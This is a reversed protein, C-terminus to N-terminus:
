DVSVSCPWVMSCFALFKALSPDLPTNFTGYDWSCRNLHKKLFLILICPHIHSFLLNPFFIISLSYFYPPFHMNEGWNTFLICIKGGTSKFYVINCNRVQPACGENYYISTSSFIYILFHPPSLFILEIFM